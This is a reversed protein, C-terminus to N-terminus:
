IKSLRNISKSYVSLINTNYENKTQISNPYTFYNIANMTRKLLVYNVQIYKRSNEDLLDEQFTGVFGAKGLIKIHSSLLSEEINLKSKLLEFDFQNEPNEILAKLIDFRTHNTISRIRLIVERTKQNSLHFSDFKKVVNPNSILFKSNLRYNILENKISFFNIDFHSLKDIGLIISYRMLENELFFLRINNDILYKWIKPIALDARGYIWDNEQIFFSIVGVDNRFYMNEDKTDFLTFVINEGIYADPLQKFSEIIFDDNLVQNFYHNNENEFIPISFSYEKYPKIFGILRM